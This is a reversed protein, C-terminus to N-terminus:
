IMSFLFISVYICQQYIKFWLSCLDCLFYNPNSHLSTLPKYILKRIYLWCLTLCEYVFVSNYVSVCVYLWFLTVALKSSSSLLLLSLWVVWLSALDTAFQQNEVSVELYIRSIAQEQWNTLRVSCGRIWCDYDHGFFNWDLNLIIIVEQPEIQISGCIRNDLIGSWVVKFLIEVLCTGAGELFLNTM